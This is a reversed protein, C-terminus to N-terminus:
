PQRDAIPPRNKENILEFLEKVDSLRLKRDRPRRYERLAHLQCTAIEDRKM